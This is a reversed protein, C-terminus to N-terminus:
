RSTQNSQDRLKFQIKLTNPHKPGFVKECGVLARRLLLEAEEYREQSQYLGALNNVSGLTDPHEPGLVKESAALARLYLPEAEGYRGQSEYLSALNNVSTLTDPHEPGLKQEAFRYTQEAAIVGARYDGKQYFGVVRRNLAKVIEQSQPTQGTEEQLVAIMAQVYDM